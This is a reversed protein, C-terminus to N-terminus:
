LIIVIGTIDVNVTVIAITIINIISCYYNSDDFESLSPYSHFDRGRQLSFSCWLCRTRKPFEWVAALIQPLLFLLSFLAGEEIRGGKRHGSLPTPALLPSAFPSPTLDMIRIMETGM